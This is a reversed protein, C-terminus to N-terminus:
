EISFCASLAERELQNECTGDNIEEMTITRGEYEGTHPMLSLSSFIGGVRVTDGEVRLVAMPAAFCNCVACCSCWKDSYLELLTVPQGELVFSDGVKVPESCTHPMEVAGDDDCGAALLVVLCSALIFYPLCKM